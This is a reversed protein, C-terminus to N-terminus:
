REYAYIKDEPMKFSEELEKSIASSMWTRDDDNILRDGFVRQHEHVWCRVVVIATEVKKNNLSCIGQFVKWIDRLNFMYHPKTPTPLLDIQIQEYITYSSAILSPKLDKIEQEFPQLFFELMTNFIGKVSAEGLDTAVITNFHRLYRQTVFTRGGGPPGMACIFLLDIVQNYALEKRNYWGEHDNWMRLIEIPPQAGYYEKQPMNLDDVMFVLKKGAPPGFVGRRRKEMKSDMNDQLQNVHTQASFNKTLRVSDETPVVITDYSAGRPPSYDPITKM